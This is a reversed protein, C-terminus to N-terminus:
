RNETLALIQEAPERVNSLISDRAITRLADGAEQAVLRADDPWAELLRLLGYCAKNRDGHSPRELQRALEGILEARVEPSEVRDMYHLMFRTANNRVHSSPDSAASHIRAISDAVDGGWNLLTAATGRKEADADLLVVDILALRHPPVLERLELALAHLEADDFDLFGETDLEPAPKGSEFGESRLQDMRAFVARVDEDALPLDGTPAPKMEVRHEDGREIVEITLFANYDIYRVAGVRVDAFEFTSRVREGIDSWAVRETGFPTGLELEVEALIADRSVSHHGNIEIDKWIWVPPAPTGTEDQTASESASRAVQCGCAISFALALPPLM